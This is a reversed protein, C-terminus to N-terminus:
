ISKSRSKRRSLCSKVLTPIEQPSQVVKVGATKFATIAQNETTETVIKYSLQNIIIGTADGFNRDIPAHIGSIYAIVPKEIASEIYTAASVEASSYPQWRGEYDAVM